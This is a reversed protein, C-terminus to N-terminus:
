NFSGIGRAMLAACLLIVGVGALEIHILRRILALRQPALTPVNGQMTAKRWSLFELTPPLSLLAVIVFISIKAIFTGSSFYYAAGKEFYFVRLFGVIVLVTAAAGYVIDTRQLLRASSLTLENRILVFEVALAAVMTFAALHHLFAFIASDLM